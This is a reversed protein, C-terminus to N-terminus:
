HKNIIRILLAMTEMYTPNGREIGRKLQDESCKVNLLTNLHQKKMSNSNNSIDNLQGTEVLAFYLMNFQKNSMNKKNGNEDVWDSFGAENLWNFIKLKLSVPFVDEFKEPCASREILFKSLLGSYYARKKISELKVIKPSSMFVFKWGINGNGFDAKSYQYKLMSSRGSFEAYHKKGKLFKKTYYKLYQRGNITEIETNSNYIELNENLLIYALEPRYINISKNNDKYTIRGNNLWEHYLDNYLPDKLRARLESSDKLLKVYKSRM